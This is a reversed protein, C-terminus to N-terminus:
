ATRGIRRSSTSADPLPARSGGDTRRPAAVFLWPLVAASLLLGGVVDSFWHQTLALRSYVVAVVIAVVGAWVAPAWRWRRSGLVVAVCLGVCVVRVTHGSPYSFPTSVIFESLDTGGVVGVPPPHDLRNKLVVEVIGSALLAGTLLTTIPRLSPVVIAAIWFALVALATAEVGGALAVVRLVGVFHSDSDLGIRDFTASDPGAVRGTAVLVTWVIFAALAAVTVATAIAAPQPRRV